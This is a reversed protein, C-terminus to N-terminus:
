SVPLCPGRLHVLPDLAAAAAANSASPLYLSDGVLPGKSEALVLEAWSLANGSQCPWGTEKGEVVKSHNGTM